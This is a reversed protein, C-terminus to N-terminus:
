SLTGPGWATIAPGRVEIRQPPTRAPDRRWVQRAHEQIVSGESSDCKLLTQTFHKAPKLPIHPPIEPDTKAELVVPRTSPSFMTGHLVWRMRHAGYMSHM